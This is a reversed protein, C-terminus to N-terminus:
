GEPPADEDPDRLREHLRAERAAERLKDRAMRTDHITSRLREIAVSANRAKLAEHDIPDQQVALHAKMADTAEHVIQAAVDAQEMAAGLYKDALADAEHLLRRARSLRNLLETALLNLEFRREAPDGSALLEVVSEDSLRPLFDAPREGRRIIDDWMRWRGEFRRM